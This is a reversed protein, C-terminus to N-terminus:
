PLSAAGNQDTLARLVEKMAIDAKPVMFLVFGAVAHSVSNDPFASLNTADCELTEVKSWITDGSDIAEKKRNEVQKIMGSSFDSAVMRSSDPLETGHAKLIESTVQGPGCGIDLITLASAFPYIANAAKTMDQAPIIGPGDTAIKM